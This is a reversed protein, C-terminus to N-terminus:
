TITSTRCPDSIAITFTVSPEWVQAGYVVRNKVIVTNTAHHTLGSTSLIELSYKDGSKETIPTNAPITWTITETVSYGCNPV